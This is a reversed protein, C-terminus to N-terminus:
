SAARVLNAMAFRPAALGDADGGQRAGRASGGHSGMVVRHTRM